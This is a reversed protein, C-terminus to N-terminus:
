LLEFLFITYCELQFLIDIFPQYDLLYLSICYIFFLLVVLWRRFFLIGLVFVLLIITFDFM